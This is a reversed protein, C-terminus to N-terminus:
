KAQLLIQERTGSTGLTGLAPFTILFLSPGLHRSKRMDRGCTGSTGLTGLIDLAGKNTTTGATAHPNKEWSTVVVGSGGGEEPRIGSPFRFRSSNTTGMKEGSSSFTAEKVVAENVIVSSMKVNDTVLLAPDEGEM